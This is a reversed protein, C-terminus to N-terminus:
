STFAISYKKFSCNSRLESRDRYFSYRCKEHVESSILLRAYARINCWENWSTIKGERFSRCALKALM